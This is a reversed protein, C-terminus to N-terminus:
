YGMQNLLNTAQSHGKGAAIKIYEIAKKENGLQHYSVGINFFVWPFDYKQSYSEYFYIAKDYNGLQYYVNGLKFEAEPHRPQLKMAKELPKIANAYDGRELLTRGLMAYADANKEDLNISKQLSSISNPYEKLYAYATGLLKYAESDNPFQEVAYRCVSAMKKYDKKEECARADNLIKLLTKGSDEIINNKIKDPMIKKSVSKNQRFIKDLIGMNNEGGLNNDKKEKKSILIKSKQLEYPCDIQKYLIPTVFKQAEVLQQFSLKKTIINKVDPNTSVNLESTKLEAGVQDINCFSVILVACLTPLSKFFKVPIPGRYNNICEEITSINPLFLYRVFFYAADLCSIARREQEIKSLKPLPQSSLNQFWHNLLRKKQSQLTKAVGVLVRM